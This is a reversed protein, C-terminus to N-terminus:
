KIMAQDAKAFIDLVKQKFAQMEQIKLDMTKKNFKAFLDVNKRRQIYDSWFSKHSLAYKILEKLDDPDIYIM